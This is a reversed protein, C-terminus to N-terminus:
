LPLLVDLFAFRRLRDRMPWRVQRASGIEFQGLADGRQGACEARHITFGQLARDPILTDGMQDLGFRFILPRRCVLFGPLWGGPRIRDERYLDLWATFARADFTFAAADMLLDELAVSDNHAGPEPLQGGFLPVGKRSMHGFVNSGPGLCGRVGGPLGADIPLTVRDVGPFKCCALNAIVHQPNPEFSGIHRLVFCSMDRDNGIELVERKCTDLRM